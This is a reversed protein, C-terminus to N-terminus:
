VRKAEFSKGLKIQIQLDLEFVLATLVFANVNRIDSKQLILKCLLVHKSQMKYYKIEYQPAIWHKM